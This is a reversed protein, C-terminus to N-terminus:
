SRFYGAPAAFGLHTLGDLGLSWLNEGKLFQPTYRGWYFSGALEHGIVPSWALRGTLSKAGKSDQNFVYFQYDLSGERGV